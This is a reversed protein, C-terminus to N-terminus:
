PLFELEEIKTFDQSSIVAKLLETRQRSMIKLADQADGQQKMSLAEAEKFPRSESMLPLTARMEDAAPSREQKAKEMQGTRIM